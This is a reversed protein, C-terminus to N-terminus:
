DHRGTTKYVKLIKQFNNELKVEDMRKKHEEYNGLVNMVKSTFDDIDRNEFLITGEPRQCVDSAVVPIKFYLAERISIGDGDTNTQRVSVDSKMLIPYFQCPKTQFLFNNEIGKEAIRQKMKNFYEYDGIDPLCFVIGIRPYYQKLNACLEILMDIGYLDQNNYFSIRFANSSIVCTHSDIFDWVEKPIEMIDEEKVVPPIFSSIVEINGPKIGLSIIREKIEIGVAIFYIGSKKALWFALKDQLNM